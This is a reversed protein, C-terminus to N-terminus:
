RPPVTIADRPLVGDLQSRSRIDLKRLHCQVTRPSIFLRAGIEPNALGDHALLEGCTEHPWRGPVSSIPPACVLQSPQGTASAFKGRL